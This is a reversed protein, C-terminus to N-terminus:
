KIGKGSREEVMTARAVGGPTPAIPTMRSDPDRAIM